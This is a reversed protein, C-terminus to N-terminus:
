HWHVYKFMKKRQSRSETCGKSTIIKYDLVIVPLIHRSFDANLESRTSQDFEVIWQATERRRRRRERVCVTNNHHLYELNLQILLFFLFNNQPIQSPEFLCCDCYDVLSTQYNDPVTINIIKMKAQCFHLITLAVM